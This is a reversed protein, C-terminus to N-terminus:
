SFRKALRQLIAAQIVVHILIFHKKRAGHELLFFKQKLMIIYKKKSLANNIVELTQSLHMFRKLIPAIDKLHM